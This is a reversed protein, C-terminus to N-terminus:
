QLSHPLRDVTTTGLVTRNQSGTARPSFFPEAANLTGSPLVAAAVTLTRTLNTSNMNTKNQSPHHNM